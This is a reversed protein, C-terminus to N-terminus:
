SLRFLLDCFYKFTLMVPISSPYKHDSPLSRVVAGVMGAWCYFLILIAFSFCSNIIVFTTCLSLILTITRPQCSCTKSQIPTEGLPHLCGRQNQVTVHKCVSRPHFFCDPTSKQRYSESSMLHKYVHSAKDTPVRQGENFCTPLDRGYLLSM